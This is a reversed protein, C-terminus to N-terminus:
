GKFLYIGKRKTEKIDIHVWNVNKEMRKLFPFRFSNKVIEKRVNEAVIGQVDFDLAKGIRHMSHTAGVNCSEPRFGRYKFKGGYCWDNITIPRNFFERIQEITIIIKEDLHLISQEGEINWIEPPVFEKIIFHKLIKYM